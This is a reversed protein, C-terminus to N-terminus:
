RTNGSSRTLPTPKWALAEGLKLKLRDQIWHSDWWEVPTVPLGHVLMTFHLHDGGALGTGGTRGIEQGRKVAEGVKVTSASLHAYLSMLGYGHDVVVCNGFIGLYSALVVLGANAAQVPSQRLSALDFGLHDQTDVPQGGALYTRRDAFSGKVASNVMPLFTESWLFRPVSRAALAALQAMNSQRLTRNLQLYDDLLNGKRALQPTRGYVEEVVKKMFSEELQITDRGMPRRQFMHIFQIGARNGLDDEAVLLIRGLAEPESVELDYPAAFLAFREQPGGGPLPYGRFFWSGAQVGDRRSRPGVQYVVVEAGGQAAHIFRSQAVLTPPTLRVERTLKVVVPPPTRLRTGRAQAVVELTLTGPQIEPTVARGLSVPITVEPRRDAGAPLEIQALVKRSFGAGDAIVEVRALGLRPERAKVTFKTRAGIAPLDSTVELVAAPPLRMERQLSFLAMGLGAATLLLLARLLRRPRKRQSLLTLGTDPRL